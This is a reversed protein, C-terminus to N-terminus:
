MVLSRQLAVARGIPTGNHIWLGISAPGFLQEVALLAAGVLGEEFGLSAPRVLLSRQPLASSKQRLEDEFADLVWDGVRIAGGGLVVTSPNLFNVIGAVIGGVARAAKEIERRSATDGRAAALGFGQATITGELERIEHLPTGEAVAESLRGIIAWAGAIAELCGTRGCRCLLDPDDSARIHGINGAVGTDGRLVSGRSITGAAVGEDMEVYLLTGITEPSGKKWEGLAMLNVDTDVWVPAEYQDRLWARVGFGDWGPLIPSTVLRGHEFDVPGSIGIGIGWPEGHTKKELHRFIAHLARMTEEPRDASDWEKQMASIVNGELDAIAARLQTPEIVGAIVFGADSRFRLTRSPRGGSSAFDSDEILGADIERQLRQAVVKRGLGTAQELAPRTTATRSRVLNLLQGHVFADQPSPVDNSLM